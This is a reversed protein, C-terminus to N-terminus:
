HSSGPRPRPCLEEEAKRKKEAVAQDACGYDMPPAGQLILEGYLPDGLIKRFREKRLDNLLRSRGGNPSLAGLVYRRLLHEFLERLSEMFPAEYAGPLKGLMRILRHALIPVYPTGNGTRAGSLIPRPEPYHLQKEMDPKIRGILQIAQQKFGFRMCTRILDVFRHAESTAEEDRASLLNVTGLSLLQLQKDLIKQAVEAAGPLTNDSGKVALSEIAKSVLARNNCCGLEPILRTEVWDKDHWLLNALEQVSNPDAKELYQGTTFKDRKMTAVWARFSDKLHEKDLAQEIDNLSAFISRINTFCDLLDGLLETWDVVQPAPLEAVLTALLQPLGTPMRGNATCYHIARRYLSKDGLNWAGEAVALGALKYKSDDLIKSMLELMDARVTIDNPHKKQDDIVLAMVVEIDTALGVLHHLKNRPILVIASDHYILMGPVHWEEDLEETGEDGGEVEDASRNSYPDAPILHEPSLNIHSVITQGRISCLDDLYVGVEENNDCNIHNPDDPDYEKKTVNSLFLSIGAETCEASLAEFVMRDHAELKFSSLNSQSYGRDLFYVIKSLDKPWSVLRERLRAQQKVLLDASTHTGLRPVMTYVLELRYGSSTEMIESTVDSHWAVASLDFTSAPATHFVWRRGAHELRIQGGTHGSPLCVILYGTVEPSSKSVQHSRVLSGKEYLVLKDSAIDVDSPALGLRHAMDQMISGLFAPWSPNVTRFCDSNLEWVLGSSSEVVEAENKGCSATEAAAKIQDALLPSLPLSVLTGDVEVGPNVFNTHITQCAVDGLAQVSELDQQLAKKWSDWAPSLQEEKEPGQECVTRGYIDFMVPAM